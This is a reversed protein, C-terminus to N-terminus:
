TSKKEKKVDKLKIQTKKEPNFSEFGLFTCNFEIKYKVKKQNKRGQM